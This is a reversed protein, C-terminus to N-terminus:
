ITKYRVKFYYENTNVGYSALLDNLKEKLSKAINASEEGNSNGRCKPIEIYVVYIGNETKVDKVNVGYYIKFSNIIVSAQELMKNENFM